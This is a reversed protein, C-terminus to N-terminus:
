SRDSRLMYSKVGSSKLVWWGGCRSSYVFMSAELTKKRVLVEEERCREVLTAVMKFAKSKGVFVSIGPTKLPAQPPEPSKSSLM